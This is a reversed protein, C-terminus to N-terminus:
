LYKLYGCAASGDVKNLLLPSEMVGDSWGEIERAGNHTATLM